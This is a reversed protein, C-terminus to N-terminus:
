QSPSVDNQEKQDEFLGPASVGPNKTEAVPPVFFWIHGERRVQGKGLLRYLTMGVTKDHIKLRYRDEIYQRMPAAKSGADGAERLRELLIEQIKPVKPPPPSEVKQAETAQHELAAGTGFVRARVEDKVEKYIADWVGAVSFDFGLGRLGTEVDDIQSDLKKIKEGSEEVIKKLRKREFWSSARRSMLAVVAPRDLPDIKITM